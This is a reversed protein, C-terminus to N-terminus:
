KQSKEAREEALVELMKAHIVPNAAVISIPEKLFDQDGYVNSVVGGAERVILGGAAIDWNNIEMEWFGDLRGAGVYVIDLAASGLRRVTQSLKSFRIFNYTNDDPTGWMNNPFGTVLMCDVLDEFGSVHLPKGNLYAGQGREAYFCEKHVPDYIVGLELKGQYTYGVSVCYMPVGHAFNLTGDLPDIFWQHDPTGEWQGTEEANITHDPFAERIAGILFQESAQDAKTVLDTPSKHRIELDEGTFSQLIEGSEQTITKVFELTPKM